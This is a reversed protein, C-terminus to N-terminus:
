GIRQGGKRSLAEFHSDRRSVLVVDAMGIFLGTGVIGSIALLERELRTPNRIEQVGCDIVPNGNDSVFNRGDDTKRVKPKLGIKGLQRIVYPLAFPVVEIPLRGREGLRKVLKEEGVLFIRKRSAAAVIKERVMAGGYGKILNLGPDVEDAGDVDVDISAGEDMSALEIGLSRALEASANSTPVGRIKLGAEALARIFVSAARGTGLGVIQGDKVYRLAVRGLRELLGKQDSGSSAPNPASRPKTRAVGM